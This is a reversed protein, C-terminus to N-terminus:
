AESDGETPAMRSGAPDSQMRSKEFLRFLQQALHNAVLGGVNGGIQSVAAGYARVTGLPGLQHGRGAELWPDPHVEGNERLLESTGSPRPHEVLM